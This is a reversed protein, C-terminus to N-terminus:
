SSSLCCTVYFLVSIPENCVDIVVTFESIAASLSLATVNVVSVTSEVPIEIGAPPKEVAVTSKALEDCYWYIFENDTAFELAIIM